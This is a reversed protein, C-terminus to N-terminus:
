SRPAHGSRRELRVAEIEAQIEGETLSPGPLASLRDAAIFLRDVRCRRVEDRILREMVDSRLVGSAEAESALNEPREITVHRVM